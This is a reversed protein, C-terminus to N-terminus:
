DGTPTSVFTEHSQHRGLLQLLDNQAISMDLLHKGWGALFFGLQGVEGGLRDTRVDGPARRTRIELYGRRGDNVCRGEALTGTVFAEPSTGTKSWTIPGGPVNYASRTYFFGDLPEWDRSGPKAPNTCVPTMNGPPALGFLASNPPPKGEAYTVWSMVCKTQGPRTCAPTQAFSGGVIEGQPVLTNWGPIIAKLMLDHAPSGEIDEAILQQLMISGQSHGILVYPRGNNRNQMYDKFAARVDGIAIESASRVDGGTAALALAAMTMQRYVPVFPRCVSSFRGFQAQTVYLEEAEGPSLDSNLGSDRSITPYVYFCDIAPAKAPRTIERPGYGTETLENHALSRACLDKREPLCIWNRGDAYDPSAAQAAALATFALLSM